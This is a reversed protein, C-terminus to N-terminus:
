APPVMQTLLFSRSAAAALLVGVDALTVAASLASLYHRLYGRQSTPSAGDTCATHDTTSPSHALKDYCALLTYVDPSM